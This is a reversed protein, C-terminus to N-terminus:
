EVPIKQLTHVQELEGQPVDMILISVEVRAGLINGHADLRNEIHWQIHDPYSMNFLNIRKDTIGHGMSKHRTVGEDRNVLGVGNDEINILIHSAECTATILLTKEARSSPTLGHCIANEVFPQLLLAPIVNREDWRDMDNKIRYTFRDDFRDKELKLYEDLITLEDAVTHVPRQSIELVRRTFRSFKVLYKLAKDNEEREVLFKISGLCNFMFHPNIQMRTAIIEAEMLNKEYLAKMRAEKQHKVLEESRRKIRSLRAYFVGIGVLVALFASMIFIIMNRRQLKAESLQKDKTLLQIQAEKSEFDYQHKIASIAVEQEHLALSDKYQQAIRYYALAHEDNGQEEYLRSILEASGQIMFYNELSNGVEYAQTYATLAANFQGNRQLINGISCLIRAQGLQNDLQEYIRLSREFYTKALPLNKNELFYSTGIAEFTIAMGNRDGMEENLQQLKYLYERALHHDGIDDYYSGISLYNMAQGLKNGSSMALHLARNLYALAEEQRGPINMIAIGLGNCAIEQNKQDKEREAIALAKLYYEVAIDFNGNHRAAVGTNNAFIMKSLPPIDAAATLDYAKKHLPIAQAYYQHYRYLLGLNDLAKAYLFTDGANVANKVADNALQICRDAHKEQQHYLRSVQLQVEIYASDRLKSKLLTELSDLKDAMSKAPLLMAVAVSAYWAAIRIFGSKM